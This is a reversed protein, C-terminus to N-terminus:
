SKLFRKYKDMKVLSAMCNFIIDPKFKKIKKIINDQPDYKIVNFKNEKLINFCAKGTQISIDREKSRGGLVVLIKKNNIM